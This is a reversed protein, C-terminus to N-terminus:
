SFNDASNKGLSWAALRLSFSAVDVVGGGDEDTPDVINGM